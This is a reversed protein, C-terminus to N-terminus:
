KMVFAYHPLEQAAAGVGLDILLETRTRDFAERLEALVPEASPFTERLPDVQRGHKWFRYCVHAGRALGTSGVYGIIDGQRVYTGRRVGNAIRSMHLYATTYTGNHRIKVYRGNYKKYAAEVVEGDGTARIPTGYPAAYDTGLHSRYRKLVPHFRRGSYRSSIRSYKVPAALFTKRLSNGEEDFYAVSGQRDFHFANFERGSSVFRAAHVRGVGVSRGGVYRQDYVATFRDGPQLHYFDIQWAFIEALEFALGVDIEEEQLTEYLSSHIVGSSKRRQVVIPRKWVSVDLNAMDFVVYTTRDPEYILAAPQAVDTRDRYLSYKLGSRLSRVDFVERSKAAVVAVQEGSAGHRLLIDSLTENRRVTAREAEYRQTDFGFTDYAEFFQSAEVEVEGSVP